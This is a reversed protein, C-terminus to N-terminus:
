VTVGVAPASSTVKLESDEVTPSVSDKVKERLRVLEIPVFPNICIRNGFHFGSDGDGSDMNGDLTGDQVPTLLIAIVPHSRVLFTSM